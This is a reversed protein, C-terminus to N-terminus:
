RCTLSIPRNAVSEVRGVVDERDDAVALDEGVGDLIKLVLAKRRTSSFHWSAPLASWTAAICSSRSL